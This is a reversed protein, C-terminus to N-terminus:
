GCFSDRVGPPKVRKAQADAVPLGRFLDTESETFPVVSKALSFTQPRRRGPGAGFGGFGQSRHNAAAEGAIQAPTKGDPLAESVDIATAHGPVGGTYYLKRPQWVTLGEKEIQDPFRSPDAVADFAETALVAVAQHHGHQGPVPAPDMTIMVAPRLARVLRVLRELTKEKGWKEFTAAVSETYFFDEQDLFYCYRVGLHALSDRLEAERLIGLAAGWQTGVTNGGGEGRTCYVNAVIKGKGLAYAALTASAGTEDDPHAFVAMIDTKLLAAGTRPAAPTPAAMAVQPCTFMATALFLLLLATKM